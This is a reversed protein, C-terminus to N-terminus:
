MGCITGRSCGCGGEVAEAFVLARASGETVSGEPMWRATVKVGRLAVANSAVAEPIDKSAVGAATGEAVVKTAKTVVM